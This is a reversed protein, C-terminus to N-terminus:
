EHHRLEPEELVLSTESVLTPSPTMEESVTLTATERDPEPPEAPLVQFVLFSGVFVVWVAALVVRYNLPITGKGRPHRRFRLAPHLPSLMM